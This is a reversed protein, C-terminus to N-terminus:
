DMYVRFLNSKFIAEEIVIVLNALKEEEDNAQDLAKL